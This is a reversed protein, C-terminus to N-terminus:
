QVNLLQNNRGSQTKYSESMRFVDTSAQYHSFRSQIDMGAFDLGYGVVFCEKPCEWGVYKATVNHTSGEKQLLVCCELSLPERKSLINLLYKLTLGTAHSNFADCLGSDIIDEVVLIHKNNIPKKTDMIIKVAGKITLLDVNLAYLARPNTVM